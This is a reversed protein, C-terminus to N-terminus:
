VSEDSAGELVLAIEEGNPRWMIAHGEDSLRRAEEITVRRAGEQALGKGGYIFHVVNEGEHLGVTKRVIQRDESIVYQGTKLTAATEPSLECTPTLTELVIRRVPETVADRIKSKQADWAYIPTQHFTGIVDGLDDNHIIEALLQSEPPLESITTGVETLQEHCEGIGLVALAPPHMNIYWGRVKTPMEMLRKAYKGALRVLEFNFGFSETKM